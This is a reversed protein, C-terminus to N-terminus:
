TARAWASGVQRSQTRMAQMHCIARAGGGICKWTHWVCVLVRSLRWNAPSLLLVCSARAAGDDLPADDNDERVETGDGQKAPAKWSAGAARECVVRERGWTPPRSLPFITASVLYARVEKEGSLEPARRWSRQGPLFLFM